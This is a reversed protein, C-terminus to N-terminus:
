KDRNCPCIRPYTQRVSQVRRMTETHFTFDLTARRLLPQSDVTNVHALDLPRLALARAVSKKVVQPSATLSRPLVDTTADNFITHTHPSSWKERSVRM